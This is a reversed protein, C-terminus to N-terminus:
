NNEEVTLNEGYASILDFIDQETILGKGLAIYIYQGNFADFLEKSVIGYFESNEYECLGYKEIDENMKEQDYCLTEKNVDFIGFLGTTEPSVTILGNAFMMMHSYSLPAWANTRETKKEFSVLKTKVMKNEGNEVTQKLFEHGIFDSVNEETIFVYQNLTADFFGHEAIISIETEDDFKLVTINYIDEGHDLLFAVPASDFEGTFFNWVLVMDTDKLDEIKKQSGDALTILTGSTFCSKKYYVDFKVEGGNQTCASKITVQKNSDRSVNENNVKAESFECDKKTLTRKFEETYSVEFPESSDQNGNVYITYIIKYKIETWEAKIEDVFSYAEFVATEGKNGNSDFYELILDNIFFYYGIFIYGTKTPVSVSTTAGDLAVFFDQSTTGGNANLKITRLKVSVVSEYHITQTNYTQDCYVKISLTDDKDQKVKTIFGTETIDAYASSFKLNNIGYTANTNFDTNDASLHIQEFSSTIVGNTIKPTGSLGRFSTLIGDLVIDYTETGDIVKIIRKATVRGTAYQSAECTFSDDGINWNFGYTNFSLRMELSLGFVSLNQGKYLVSVDASRGVMLQKTSSLINIGDSDKGVLINFKNSDKVSSNDSYLIETEINSLKKVTFNVTYTYGYRDLSKMVVKLVTGAVLNNKVKIKGASLDIQEINDDKSVLEFQKNTVKDLSVIEFSNITGRDIEVGKFGVIENPIYINITLKSLIGDQEAVLVIRNEFDSYVLKTKINFTLGIQDGNQYNGDINEAGSEITITPQNKSATQSTKTSLKVAEASFLGSIYENKNSSLLLTRTPKYVNFSVINSVKSDAKVKLSITIDGEPLNDKVILKGNSITAYKTSDLEFSATRIESNTPLILYSVLSSLNYSTNEVLDDNSIKILKALNVPVYVEIDFEHKLVNGNQNTQVIIKFSPKYDSIEDINRIKVVNNEVYAIDSNDVLVEYVKNVETINFPELFEGLVAITDGPLYKVGHTPRTKISAVFKTAYVPVVTVEQEYFVGDTADIRVIIKTGIPATASITLKGNSDITAIDESVNVSYLVPADGFTANFPEVNATFSYSCKQEVETLSANPPVIANVPKYLKFTKETFVDTQAVSSVRVVIELDGAELDSSVSIQGAISVSAYEKGSIIEYALNKDTANEPFVKTQLLLTEGQKIQTETNLISISDVLVPVVTFVLSNDSVIDDVIAVVEITEGITANESIKLTNGSISAGEGITIQYAINVATDKAITPFIDVFLKRQEGPMVQLSQNTGIQVSEIDNKEIVFPTGSSEASASLNAKMPFAFMFCFCLMLLMLFSKAKFKQM